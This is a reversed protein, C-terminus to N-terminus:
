LAKWERIILDNVYTDGVALGGLNRYEKFILGLRKITGGTRWGSDWGSSPPSAGGSTSYGSDDALVKDTNSNVHDFLISMGPDHTSDPDRYDCIAKVWDGGPYAETGTIVNKYSIGTDITLGNCIAYYLTTTTSGRRMLYTFRTNDQWSLVIGAFARVDSNGIRFEFVFRDPLDDPLDNILWVNHFSSYLTQTHEFHIRKAEEGDTIPLDDVTITGVANTSRWTPTGAGDSFQSLDEGNWRWIEAGLPNVFQRPTIFM